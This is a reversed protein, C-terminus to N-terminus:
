RGLRVRACVWVSNDRGMTDGILEEMCYRGGRRDFVDLFRRESRLVGAEGGDPWTLPTGAPFVLDREPHRRSGLGGLGWMTGQDPPGEPKTIALNAAPTWTVCGLHVQRVGDVERVSATEALQLAFAADGTEVPAVVGVPPSTPRASPVPEWTSALDAPDLQVRLVAGHAEVRHTFGGQADPVVATGAQLTVTGGGGTREVTRGVVQRIADAPAWLRLSTTLTLTEHCTGSSRFGTEVLIQDGQRELLRVPVGDPLSTWDAVVPPGTRSTRLPAQPDLAVLTPPEAHALPSAASALLVGALIMSRGM